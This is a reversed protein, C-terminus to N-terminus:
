CGDLHGALLGGETGATDDGTVTITYTDGVLGIHPLGEDNNVNALVFARSLNDAPLAPDLPGKETM